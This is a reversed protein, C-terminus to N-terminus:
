GRRGARARGRGRGRGRGTDQSFGAEVAGEQDENRNGTLITVRMIPPQHWERRSNLVWKAVSERVRCGEDGQRMAAVKFRGTVEMMFKVEKSEHKIVCHKWLPSLENHKGVDDVHKLGRQYASQGTEGEYIASETQDERSYPCESCIQRYGVGRGM